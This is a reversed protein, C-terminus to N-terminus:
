TSKSQQCDEVDDEMEATLTAAYDGIFDDVCDNATEIRAKLKKVDSEYAKNKATCVAYNSKCVDSEKKTTSYQSKYKDKLQTETLLASKTQSLSSEVTSLNSQTSKLETLKTSYLEDYKRIDQSTTNLSQLTKNLQNSYSDRKSECMSLSKLSSEHTDTLEKFTDQYYVSSAALAITVFVVLLMMFLNINKQLFGM